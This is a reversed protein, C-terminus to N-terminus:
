ATFHFSLVGIVTGEALLPLAAASEFGSDAALAGSRPYEKQWEVLSGVLVPSRTEAAATACLGPDAGFRHWAEVALRTYEEAYLTEFQRGEDVLMAVSAASAGVVTKGQRVIVRAVSNLTIAESLAASLEYLRTMRGALARYKGESERLADEARHRERLEADARVRYDESEARAREATEYVQARVYAQAVHRAGALLVTREEGTFARAADFS